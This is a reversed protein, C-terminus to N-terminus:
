QRRSLFSAGNEEKWAGGCNGAPSARFVMVVVCGIVGFVPLALGLIALVHGAGFRSATSTSVIAYATLCFSQSIFLWSHRNHIWQLEAAFLQEVYSAASIAEALSYFTTPKSM